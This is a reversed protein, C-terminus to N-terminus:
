PVAISTARESAAGVGLKLTSGSVRVRKSLRQRGKKEFHRNM